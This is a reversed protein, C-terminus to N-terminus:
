LSMTLPTEGHPLSILILWNASVLRIQASMGDTLFANCIKTSEPLLKHRVRFLSFVLAIQNPLDALLLFLGKPMLHTLQGFLPIVM